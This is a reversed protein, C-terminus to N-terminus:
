KRFLQPAFRVVFISGAAILMLVFLAIFAARKMWSVTAQMKAKEEQQMTQMRAFEREIAANADPTRLTLVHWQKGQEQFPAPVAEALEGSAPIFGKGRWYPASSPSWLRELAHNHIMAQIRTWLLDRVQDALEPRAMAEGHLLGQSGSVQLGLAGVVQGSDDSVVQFEKFRKELAEAPLQELTWLTMLQPLDEVTARRAQFRPAATMIM